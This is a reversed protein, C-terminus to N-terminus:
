SVIRYVQRFNIDGALVYTRKNYNFRMSATICFDKTAKSLYIDSLYSGKELAVKFYEEQSRDSGKKGEEIFYETKPNIVNRTVQLGRQGMVYFLEFYPYQSFAEELTIEWLEQSEEKLAKVIAKLDRLVKERLKPLSERGVKGLLILTNKRGGLLFASTNLPKVRDRMLHCKRLFKEWDKVEKLPLSFGYIEVATEGFLLLTERRFSELVKVVEEQSVRDRLLILEGGELDEYVEELFHAKLTEYLLRYLTELKSAGFREKFELVNKLGFVLIVKEKGLNGKIRLPTPIPSEKFKSLYHIVVSPNLIGLYRGKKDILIVPEGISLLFELSREFEKGESLVLLKPVVKLLEGATLEEGESREVVRREVIGIPRGEKLVTLKDYIKNEKFIKKLERLSERYDVTPYGTSIELLSLTNPLGRPNTFGCWM